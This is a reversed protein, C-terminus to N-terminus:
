AYSNARFWGVAKEFAKEVPRQPMGLEQAAKDCKVYVPKRAVNVGELPIAPERRMLSSEIFNDLYAAGVAVWMPLNWRPAPVGSVDQLMGFMQRLTLNVNGLIYREGPVGKELALVHGQAVDEVDVVNMGTDVCAPVRRRIFDLVIRGTPTPKVDWPGVPATPNVVVVPLGEDGFRRAEVEARHKSRKYHGIMEEETPWDDETGPRDAPAHITSVTSTYVCKEVKAKMAEELVLRTGGVNAEYIPAPDRAWFKYLAACHVLAQCGELAQAVSDRDLLDGYALEISTGQLALTNSEKRVLARVQYGHELFSRAVNAGIFGSAGTVLVLM